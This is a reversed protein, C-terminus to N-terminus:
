SSVAPTPMPRALSGRHRSISRGLRLGRGVAAVRVLRVGANSQGGIRIISVRRQYLWGLPGQMKGSIPDAPLAGTQITLEDKTLVGDDYQDLVVINGGSTNQAVSKLEELM